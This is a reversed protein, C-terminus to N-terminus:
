VSKCQRAMLLVHPLNSHHLVCCVLKHTTVTKSLLPPGLGVTERGNNSPSLLATYLQDPSLSSYRLPFPRTDYALYPVIRANLYNSRARTGASYRMTNEPNRAHRTKLGHSVDNEETKEPRISPGVTLKYLVFM